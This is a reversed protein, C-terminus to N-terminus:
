LALLELAAVVMVVLEELVEVKAAQVAVAAATILQAELFLLSSALVVLGAKARLALAVLLEPVEVAAGVKLPQQTM